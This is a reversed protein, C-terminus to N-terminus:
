IGGMFVRFYVDVNECTLCINVIGVINLVSGDSIGIKKHVRELVPRYEPPFNDCLDGMIFIIMACTDIKLEFSMREVLGDIRVGPTRQVKACSGTVTDQVEATSSFDSHTEIDTQPEDGSDRCQVDDTSPRKRM